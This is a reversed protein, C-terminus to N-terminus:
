GCTWPYALLQKHRPCCVIHGQGGDGFMVPIYGSYGFQFIMRDMRLGCEPCNPYATVVNAWGPWGGLKENDRAWPLTFFEKLTAPVSFVPEACEVQKKRFALGMEEAEAMSPYDDVREWGIIKRSPIVDAASSGASAPARADGAQMTPDILRILHTETFPNGEERGHICDSELCIFAQLIGKGVRDCVLEPATSLNLQLFLAMAGGCQTCTPWAEGETLWPTGSFKSDTASGDGDCVTPLWCDRRHREFWPALSAFKTPLTVSM